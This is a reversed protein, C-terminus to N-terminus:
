SRRAARASKSLSIRHRSGSSAFDLAPRKGLEAGVRPADRGRHRLARAEHTVAAQFILRHEDLVLGEALREEARGVDAVDLRDVEFEAALHAVLVVVVDEFGETM